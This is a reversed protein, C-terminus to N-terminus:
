HWISGDCDCEGVACDCGGSPTEDWVPAGGMSSQGVNEKIDALKEMQITDFIVVSSETKEPKQVSQHRVETGFDRFDRLRNLANRWGGNGKNGEKSKIGSIGYESVFKDIYLKLEEFTLGEARAVANVSPVYSDPNYGRAKLYDRFGKINNGFSQGILDTNSLKPGKSSKQSTSPKTKNSFPNTKSSFPNTKSSFSKKQTSNKREARYAINIIEEGTYEKEAPPILAKSRFEEMVKLGFINQYQQSVYGTLCEYEGISTQLGAYISNIEYKMGPVLFYNLPDVFRLFHAKVIAIDDSSLNKDITRQKIGKENPEWDSPKGLPFIRERDAGTLKLQNDGNIKLFEEKIGYIHALYWNKETLVGGRVSGRNKEYACIANETCSGSTDYHMPFEFNRMLEKFENVDPHVGHAIMNFIEHVDFNSVFVYEINNFKTYCARRTDYKGSKKSGSEYYRVWYIADPLDVYEMFMKHWEMINEKWGEINKYICNNYFSKITTDNGDFLEIPYKMNEKYYERITM